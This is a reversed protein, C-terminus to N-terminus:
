IYLLLLSICFHFFLSYLYIFVFFSVFSNLSFDHLNWTWLMKRFLTRQMFYKLWVSYKLQLICCSTHLSFQSFFGHYQPATNEMIKFLVLLLFNWVLLAITLSSNKIIELSKVCYSSISCASFKVLFLRFLPITHPEHSTHLFILRLGKVRLLSEYRIEGWLILRSACM